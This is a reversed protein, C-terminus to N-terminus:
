RKNNHNHNNNSFFSRKVSKFAWPFPKKKLTGAAIQLWSFREKLSMETTLRLFAQREKELLELETFKKGPFPIDGGSLIDALTKAVFAMHRRIFNPVKMPPLQRAAVALDIGTYLTAKM